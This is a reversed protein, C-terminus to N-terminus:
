GDQSGRSGLGLAEVDRGNLEVDALDLLEKSDRCMQAIQYTNPGDSWFCAPAEHPHKCAASSSPPDSVKGHASTLFLFPRPLLHAGVIALAKNHSNGQDSLMNLESLPSM